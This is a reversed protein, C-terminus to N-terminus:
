ILTTYSRLNLYSVYHVYLLIGQGQAGHLSVLSLLFLRALSLIKM